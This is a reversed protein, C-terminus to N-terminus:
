VLGFPQLLPHSSFPFPTRHAPPQAPATLAPTLLCGEFRPMETSALTVAMAAEAAGDQAIKQVVTMVKGRVQSTAIVSEQRHGNRKGTPGIREYVLM